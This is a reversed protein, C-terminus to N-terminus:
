IATRAQVPATPIETTNEPVGSTGTVQLTAQYAIPKCESGPPSLTGGETPSCGTLVLHEPRKGKEVEALFHIARGIPDSV